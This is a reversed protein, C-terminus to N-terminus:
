ICSGYIKRREMMSLKGTSTSDIDSIHHSAISMVKASRM